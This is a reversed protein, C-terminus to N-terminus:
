VERVLEYRKYRRVAITDFGTQSNFEIFLLTGDSLLKIGLPRVKLDPFQEKAFLTLARIQAIGLREDGVKAEIPLAYWHGDEDM